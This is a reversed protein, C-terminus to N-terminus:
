IKFMPSSTFDMTLKFKHTKQLAYILEHVDETRYQLGKITVATSAIGPESLITQIVEKSMKTIELVTDAGNRIAKQYYEVDMEM